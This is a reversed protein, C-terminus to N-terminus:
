CSGCGHCERAAPPATWLMMLRREIYRGRAAKKERTPTSTSAPLAPSVPSKAWGYASKTNGPAEAGPQRNAPLSIGRVEPLSATTQLGSATFSAPPLSSQATETTGRRGPAQAGPQRNAPLIIGRVEPLSAKTQLGSVTFSAPPLVVAGNRDHWAARAPNAFMAAAILGISVLKNM